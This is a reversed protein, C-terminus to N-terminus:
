QSPIPFHSALDAYPLGEVFREILLHRAIRRYEHHTLIDDAAHAPIAVLVGPATNEANGLSKIRFIAVPQEIRREGFGGIDTSRNSSGGTAHTRHGFQHEDVEHPHAEILYEVLGGLEFVHEAALSLRRDDDAGHDAATEPGRCLM